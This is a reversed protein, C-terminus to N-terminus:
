TTQDTTPITVANFDAYMGTCQIIALVYRHLGGLFFIGFLTCTLMFTSFDIERESPSLVQHVLPLHLSNIISSWTNLVKVQAGHLRSFPINSSISSVPVYGSIFTTM